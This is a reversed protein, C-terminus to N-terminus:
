PAPTNQVLLIDGIKQAFYESGVFHAIMDIRVTSVCGREEGM